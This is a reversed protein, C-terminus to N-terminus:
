LEVGWYTKMDHCNAIRKVIVAIIERLTSLSTQPKRPQLAKKTNCYSVPM